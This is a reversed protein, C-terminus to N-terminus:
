CWGVTKKGNYSLCPLRCPFGMRGAGPFPSRGTRLVTTREDFQYVEYAKFDKKNKHTTDLVLVRQTEEKRGMVEM